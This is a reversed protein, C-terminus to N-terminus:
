PQPALAVTHAATCSAAISAFLGARYGSSEVALKGASDAATRLANVVDSVAPPPSIPETPSTPTTAETSAPEPQGAVRAIEVGVARAHEAREAAIETLAAAVAPSAVAAAAAALESDQRALVQQAVLDDVAPPPPSACGSTAVAFLALLGSGALM